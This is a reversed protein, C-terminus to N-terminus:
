GRPIPRRSPNQLDDLCLETWKEEDKRKPVVSAEENDSDFEASPLDFDDAGISDMRWEDDVLDLLKAPRHLHAM